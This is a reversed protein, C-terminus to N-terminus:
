DDKSDIQKLTMVAYTKVDGSHNTSSEIICKSNAPIIFSNADLDNFHQTDTAKWRTEIISLENIKLNWGIYNHTDIGSSHDIYYQFNTVILVKNPSTFNFMELTNSNVTILGSWGGWIGGGMYSISKGIGQPTSVGEPM